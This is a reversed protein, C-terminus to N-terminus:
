RLKTTLNVRKGARLVNVTVRDGVLYNQRVYSLFAQVNMEMKLSDVGLIIDGERVGIAQAESHVPAVQRFALQKEDLGVTKKESATMDYGFVTLSPLLDLLSPRWTLNTKRWGEAVKLSGSKAQGASTWHVEIDGKIPAYHLAYQADAFSFVPRGNLTQIIDGSKLGAAAAPSGPLVTRIVNGRDLALSMGVNEPLPYVWISDRSWTGADKDEQRRIEKVQHCHICGNRVIKRVSAYKEAFVPPRSAPKEQSHRRHAELANEMAFRLGALSNRTDPGQADRGGYRGYVFGDANMFFAAWTLDHDFDFINLDVGSIQLLRVREFSDAV